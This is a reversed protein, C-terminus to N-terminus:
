LDKENESSEIEKLIQHVNEETSRLKSKCLQILFSARKVQESLLDLSIDGEEIQVLLQQLEEFADTYNLNEEM